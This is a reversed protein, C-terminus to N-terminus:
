GTAEFKLGPLLGARTMMRVVRAEDCDLVLGEVEVTPAAEDASRLVHTVVCDDCAATCQQSCDDCSISFTRHGTHGIHRGIAHVQGSRARQSALDGVWHHRHENMVPMM